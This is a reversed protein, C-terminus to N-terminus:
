SCDNSEFLTISADDPQALDAGWHFSPVDGLLEPDVTLLTRADGTYYIRNKGTYNSNEFVMTGM